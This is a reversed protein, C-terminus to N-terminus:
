ASASSADLAPFGYAEEYRKDALNAIRGYFTVGHSVGYSAGLDIRAYGPNMIQGPFNYDARPRHFVTSNWNMRRFSANLM